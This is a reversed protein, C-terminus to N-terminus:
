DIVILNEDATPLAELFADIEAQPVDKLWKAVEQKEAPQTSQRQVKAPNLPLNNIFAEVEEASINKMDPALGAKNQAVQNTSTDAPRQATILPEGGEPNNNLLRYGGFFVIGGIAAAVAAKAWTRSLFPVVIAKPRTLTAMMQQPLQEFYGQPVSYPMAKGIAALVPSVEEDTVVSSLVAANEDFYGDPVTYPSKKSLGALLPSLVQLEEAASTDQAQAKALVETALQEFYGEPVSFPNPGGKVPLSSNLSRLEDQINNQDHM